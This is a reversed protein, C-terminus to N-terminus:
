NHARFFSLSYIHLPISIFLSLSYNGQKINAEDILDTLDNVGLGDDPEEYEGAMFDFDDGEEAPNTALDIIPSTPFTVIHTISTDELLNPPSSDKKSGGRPKTEQTASFGPFLRLNPEAEVSVLCASLIVPLEQMNVTINCTKCSGGVGGEKEGKNRLNNNFAKLNKRSLVNSWALFEGHGIKGVKSIVLRWNKTGMVLVSQIFLWLRQIADNIQSRNKLRYGHETKSNLNIFVNDHLHGHQDTVTALLFDESFLCYSVFLVREDPNLLMFKQASNAMGIQHRPALIYPQCPVKFYLEQGNRLNDLIDSMQASPGFRTMSKCMVGRVNEPVLIRTQNYVSFALRRLNDHASSKERNIVEVPELIQTEERLVSSIYGNYDLIQQANIIEIQLQPRREPRISKM